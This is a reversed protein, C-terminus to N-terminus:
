SRSSDAHYARGDITTRFSALNYFATDVGQWSSTAGSTATDFVFVFTKEVLSPSLSGNTQDFIGHARFSIPSASAKNTLVTLLVSAIPAYDV